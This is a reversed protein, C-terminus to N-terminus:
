DGSESVKPPVRVLTGLEGDHHVGGHHTTLWVSGDPVLTVGGQPNRPAARGEGLKALVQLNGDASVRFVSGANNQGGALTAGYLNGEADLALSGYPQTGAHGGTPFGHLISFVGAADIKFVPGDYNGNPGSALGITSGYIVGGPALLVNTPYSGEKGTDPWSHLVTFNGGDLDVRYVSGLSGGQGIRTTGYLRGDLGITVPGSVVFHEDGSFSYIFTTKGQPTMRYIVGHDYKGGFVTAGYFNGDPGASPPGIPLRPNRNKGGFEHLVTYEGEMTVRFVLGGGRWGPATITGYLMRDPGESLGSIQGDGTSVGPLDFAHIVSFSGEPTIRFVTGNKYAGRKSTTGYLNGDSALLLPQTPFVGESNKFLHAPRGVVAAEVGALLGLCCVAATIIYSAQVLKM